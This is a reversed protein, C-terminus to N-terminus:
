FYNEHTKIANLKKLCIYYILGQFEGRMRKGKKHNFMMAVQPLVDYNM